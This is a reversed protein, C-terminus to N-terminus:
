PGEFEAMATAAQKWEEIVKTYAQYPSEGKAHLQKFKIRFREPVQEQLAMRAQVYTMNHLNEPKEFHFEGTLDETSWGGKADIRNALKRPRGTMFAEILYRMAYMEFDKPTGGIMDQAAVESSTLNIFAQWAIYAAQEAERARLM